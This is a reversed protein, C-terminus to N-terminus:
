PQSDCCSSCQFTVANPLNLVVSRHWIKATEKLKYSRLIPYKPIRNYGSKYPRIVKTNIFNFDIVNHDPLACSIIEIKNGINPAYKQNNQRLYTTELLVHEGKNYRILKPQIKDSILVAGNSHKSDLRIVWTQNRTTKTNVCCLFNNESRQVCDM